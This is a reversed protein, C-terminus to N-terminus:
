TSRINTQYYMSEVNASFPICELRFRMLTGVLSNTQDPGSLLESNLSKGDKSAACDFVVCINDNAPHYVGYHPMLWGVSGKENDPVQVTYGKEMMRNMFEVYDSHYSQERVM